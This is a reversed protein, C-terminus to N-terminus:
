SAHGKLYAVFELYLQRRAREEAVRLAKAVHSGSSELYNLTIDIDHMRGLLDQLDKLLAINVPIGVEGKIIKKCKKATSSDLSELIYRLKKLNKRLSHIEKPNGDDVRAASLGAKIKAGLRRTVKDLRGEFEDPDISVSLRKAKKLKKAKMVAHEQMKDRERLM